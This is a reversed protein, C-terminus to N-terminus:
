KCTARVAAPSLGTIAPVKGYRERSVTEKGLLDGGGTDSRRGLRTSTIQRATGEAAAIAATSTARPEPKGVSRGSIRNPVSNANASFWLVTTAPLVLTLALKMTAMAATTTNRASCESSPGM